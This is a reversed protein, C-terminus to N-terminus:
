EIVDKGTGWEFWEPGRGKHTTTGLRRRGESTGVGKGKECRTGVTGKREFTRGVSKDYFKTSDGQCELGSKPRFGLGTSFYRTYYNMM